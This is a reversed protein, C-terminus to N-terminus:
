FLKSSATGSSLTQNGTDVFPLECSRIVGAEPFRKQGIHPGVYVHASLCVCVCLAHEPACM